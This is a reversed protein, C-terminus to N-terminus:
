EDYRLAVVTSKFGAAELMHHYAQTIAGFKDASEKDTPVESGIQVRINPKTDAAGHVPMVNAMAEQWLKDSVLAKDEDPLNQLEGWFQVSLMLKGTSEDILMCDGTDWQRLVVPTSRMERIINGNPADGLLRDIKEGSM